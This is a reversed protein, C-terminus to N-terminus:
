TLVKAQYSKIVAILLQDGAIQRVRQILERRSIKNERHDRHYKSILAITPSPLFKSLASILIPFPLWPSTPMRLSEQARGFGKLSSPAKLSIIYEPLIHTNMNSSWVIYRRPVKLNDVGSDFETSSPHSQDSGPRVVEVKGLMVRCLLMYRLGDKDVLSNKVCEMPSDDPCLYIGCGYLGNNDPKGCCGFGHQIIKCIEDKTSSYWAYKVNADGGWKRALAKAFIQFSQVRAQGIIGPFLNRQIGVIEARTGLVGLGSILRRKILDYVKDGEHLSILGEGLSPHPDFASGSNASECDSMVSDDDDDHTTDLGSNRTYTQQNLQSDLTHKTLSNSALVSIDRTFEM